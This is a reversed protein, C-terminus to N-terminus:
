GGLKCDEKLAEHQAVRAWLRSLRLRELRMEVQEREASGLGIENFSTQDLGFLLKGTISKKRFREGLHRFGNADLWTTM